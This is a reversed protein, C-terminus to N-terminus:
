VKENIREKISELWNLDSIFFELEADDSYLFTEDYESIINLLLQKIREMAKIYDFDEEKLIINWKFRADTKMLDLILFHYEEILKSNM